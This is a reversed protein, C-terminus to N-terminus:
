AAPPLMDLPIDSPKYHKPPNKLYPVILILTGVILAAGATIIPNIPLLHLYNEISYVLVSLIVLLILKTMLHSPKFGSCFEAPCHSKLLHLHLVRVFTHYQRSQDEWKGEEAFSRNSIKVSGYDLSQLTMFFHGSKCELRVDTIVSYPIIREKGQQRIHLQFNTLELEIQGQHPGNTFTYQM